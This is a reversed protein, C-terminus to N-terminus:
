RTVTPSSGDPLTHWELTTTFGGSDIMPDGTPEYLWTDNRGTLPDVPLERVVPSAGLPRNWPAAAPLPVANGSSDVGVEPLDRRVLDGLTAPLSGYQKTFQGLMGDLRTLTEGLGLDRAYRIRDRASLEVHAERHVVLWGAPATEVRSFTLDEMAERDLLTWWRTAHAPMHEAVAAPVAGAPARKEYSPGVLFPCPGRYECILGPSATEAAQRRVGAYSTGPALPQHLPLDIESLQDCSVFGDTLAILLLATRQRSSLRSVTLPYVLRDTDFRIGIPEVDSLVRHGGAAKPLLKVAVFFWQRAVCSNLVGDSGPPVAYGHKNLWDTLADERTASLIAVDYIGVAMRRHVTVAAAGLGGGSGGLTGGLGQTVTAEENITTVVRPRTASLVADVLRTPAEFVDEAAPESPVPVVWAFDQAPGHYATQLLLAERGEPLEILIATQQVSALGTLGAERASSPRGFFMGDACAVAPLLLALSQLSGAVM